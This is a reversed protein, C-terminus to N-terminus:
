RGKLLAACIRGAVIRPAPGNGCNILGAPGRGVMAQVHQGLRPAGQPSELRQGSLDAGYEASQMGRDRLRHGKHERAVVSDGVTADTGVRTHNRRLHDHVKQRTARRDAHQRLCLARVQPDNVSSNVAIERGM